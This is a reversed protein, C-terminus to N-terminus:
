DNDAFPINKTKNILRKTKNISVSQKEKNKNLLYCTLSMVSMGGIVSAIIILTILLIETQNKNVKNRTKKIQNEKEKRDKQTIQHESLEESILQKIRQYEDNQIEGKEIEQAPIVTKEQKNLTTASYSIRETVEQRKIETTSSTQGNSANNRNTAQEKTMKSPTTNMIEDKKPRVQTIVQEVHSRSKRSFSSITQWIIEGKKLRIRYKRGKELSTVKELHPLMLRIRKYLYYEAIKGRATESVDSIELELKRMTALTRNINGQVNEFAVEWNIGSNGTRTVARRAAYRARLNELHSGILGQSRIESLKEELLALARNMANAEIQGKDNLLQPFTQLRQKMLYRLEPEEKVGILELATSRIIENAMQNINIDEDFCIQGQPIAALNRWPDVTIESRLYSTMSNGVAYRCQGEGRPKRCSAANAYVLQCNQPYKAHMIRLTRYQDTPTTPRQNAELTRVFDTYSTRECMEVQETIMLKTRGIRWWTSWLFNKHFRSHINNAVLSYIQTPRERVPGHEFEVKIMADGGIASEVFKWQVINSLEKLDYRFDQSLNAPEFNGIPMIIEFGHESANLMYSYERFDCVRLTGRTGPTYKIGWSEEMAVQCPEQREIRRWDPDVEKANIATVKWEVWKYTEYLITIMHDIMKLQTMIDLDTVQLYRYIRIHGQSDTYNAVARKITSQWNHQALAKYEVASNHRHHRMGYLFRQRFNTLRQHILRPDEEGVVTMINSARYVVQNNNEYFITYMQREEVRIQTTEQPIFGQRLQAALIKHKGRAPNWIVQYVPPCACNEDYEEPSLYYRGQTTLVETFTQVPTRIHGFDRLYHHKENVLDCPYPMLEKMTVRIEETDNATTEEFSHRKLLDTILEEDQTVYVDEPFQASGIEIIMLVYILWMM